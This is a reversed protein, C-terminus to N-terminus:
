LLNDLESAPSNKEESPALQSKLEVIARRLENIGLEEKLTAFERDRDGVVSGVPLIGVGSVVSERMEDSLETFEIGVGYTSAFYLQMEERTLLDPMRYRNEHTRMGDSITM